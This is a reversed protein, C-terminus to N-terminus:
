AFLILVPFSGVTRWLVPMHVMNNRTLDLKERTARYLLNIFGLKFMINAVHTEVTRESVVLEGAIERNIKGQEILAAVERERATLGEFAQKAARGPSLLRTRPLMSTAQQQFHERLYEDSIPPALEDIMTRPNSFASESEAQRGQTQYLKGLTVYIRWVLSRMGQNHASEKAALLVAEAEATRGLMMYAEGRLKSLRPIDREVSFNAASETMNEVLELAHAPNGQALALEANACWVLRQGLTQTPTNADISANILAEALRLEKQMIYTSALHGTATRIWHLSYTENALSLAQELHQRAMPLELLDRYIVGAACHVATM